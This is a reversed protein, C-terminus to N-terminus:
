LTVDQMLDELESHIVVDDAVVGCVVHELLQLLGVAATLLLALRQRNGLLLQEKREDQLMLLVPMPIRDEIDHGIGAHTDTLDGAKAPLVYVQLVPQDVDIMRKDVIVM